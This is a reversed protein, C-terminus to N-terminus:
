EELRVVEIRMRQESADAAISDGVARVMRLQESLHLPSVSKLATGEAWCLVWQTNPKMVGHVQRAVRAYSEADTLDTKSTEEM